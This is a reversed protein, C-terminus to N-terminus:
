RSAQGGADEAARLKALEALVLPDEDTLDPEQRPHQRQYANWMGWGCLMGFILLFFWGGLDQHKAFLASVFVNHSWAEKAPLWASFGTKAYAFAAAQLAILPWVAWRAWRGLAPISFAFAPLACSLPELMLRYGFFGDGGTFYDIQGQVLTYVLGAVLLVRSWDPLRRWSRVVAPIMVLLVPTFILVGRDPAVWLGLQNVIESVVGHGANPNSDGTRGTSLHSVIDSSTYGGSPVWTAYLLHSWLAALALLPVSTAATQLAPRWDRRWLSIGLGLIAAILAVHLRGWLGVGAFLGVLWWRDRDAAWAIGAIGLVTFCHTWPWNGTITWMPTTFAYVAVVTLAWRLRLHRSLLLFVLMVALAACFAASLDGPAPTWDKARTGGGNIWYAPISILVAGPSRFSVLHGGAGHAFSWNDLSSRAATGHFNFHDFWPTHAVAIRWAELSASYTDTSFHSTDITLAYVAFTLGFVILAQVGRPARVLRGFVPKM